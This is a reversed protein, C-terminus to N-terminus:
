SLLANPMSSRNLSSTEDLAIKGELLTVTSNWRAYDDATTLLAWIVSADAQIDTSVTTQRSFTTKVTEAIGITSM